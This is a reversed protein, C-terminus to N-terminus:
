WAAFELLDQPDTMELCGSQCLSVAETPSTAIFAERAGDARLMVLRRREGQRELLVNLACVLARLAVTGPIDDDDPEDDIASLHEASRLVLPGDDTDESGIRELQVPPLDPHLAVLRQVLEHASVADTDHHVLFRDTAVRRRGLEADGGGQYYLELIDLRRIDPQNTAGLRELFVQLLTETMDELLGAGRLTRIFM